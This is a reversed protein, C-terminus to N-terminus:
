NAIQFQRHWINCHWIRRRSDTDILFMRGKFPRACTPRGSRPRREKTSYPVAGWDIAAIGEVRLPSRGVQVPM